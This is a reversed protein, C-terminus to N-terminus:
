QVAGASAISDGASICGQARRASSAASRALADLGAEARRLGGAFGAALGAVARLGAAALRRPQPVGAAPRWDFIAPQDRDWSQVIVDDGRRLQLRQGAELIHDDLDGLRTVWVRGGAVSFEADAQPLRIPEHRVTRFSGGRAAYFQAKM